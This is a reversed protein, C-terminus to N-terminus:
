LDQCDMVASVSLGLYNNACFNLINRDSGQVKINACQPSTIVREHKWLGAERIGDLETDLIRKVAAAGASTAQPVCVVQTHGLFANLRLLKARLGAILLLTETHIVLNSLWGCGCIYGRHGKVLLPPLFTCAVWVSKKNFALKEGSCRMVSICAYYSTINGNFSPYRRGMHDVNVPSTM